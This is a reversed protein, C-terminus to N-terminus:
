VPLTQTDLQSKLGQNMAQLHQMADQTIESKHMILKDYFQYTFIMFVAIVPILIATSVWAATQSYDYFKVWCLIAIEGMFLLIGFVTSFIWATEIYYHLRKHPSESVSNLNHTNAVAEINPLICTSIMLALMHVSVLLTTCIAFAILWVQPINNSLQVEVM